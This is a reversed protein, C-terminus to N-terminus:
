RCRMPPIQQEGWLQSLFPNLNWKWRWLEGLHLSWHLWRWIMKCSTNKEMTKYMKSRQWKWYVLFKLLRESMSHSWMRCTRSKLGCLLPACCLCIVTIICASNHWVLTVIFQFNGFMWESTIVFTHSPYSRRSLVLLPGGSAGVTTTWQISVERGTLSCLWGCSNGFDQQGSGFGRKKNTLM